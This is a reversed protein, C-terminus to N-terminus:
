SAWISIIDLPGPLTLMELTSPPIVASLCAIFVYHGEMLALAVVFYIKWTSPALKPLVGSM